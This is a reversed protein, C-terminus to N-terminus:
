TLRRRIVTSRRSLGCSQNQGDERKPEEDRALLAEAPIQEAAQTEFTTASPEPELCRLEHEEQTHNQNLATREDQTKPKEQASVVQAPLPETAKTEASTESQLRGAEQENKAMQGRLERDERLAKLIEQALKEERESLSGEEEDAESQSPKYVRETETLADEDESDADYGLCQYYAAREESQFAVRKPKCEQSPVGFSRAVEEMSPRNKEDCERDKRAKAVAAQLRRISIMNPTRPRTLVPKARLLQLDWSRDTLRNCDVGLHDSLVVLAAYANMVVAICLDDLSDPDLNTRPVRAFDWGTPECSKSQRIVDEHLDYYVLCEVLKLGAFTETMLNSLHRTLSCVLLTCNEEDQLHWFAIVPMPFGEPAPLRNNSKDYLPVYKVLQARHSLRSNAGRITIEEFQIEMRGFIREMNALRVDMKHLRIDIEDFKKDVAAFGTNITTKVDQILEPANRAEQKIDEDHIENLKHEDALKDHIEDIQAEM